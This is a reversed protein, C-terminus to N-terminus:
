LVLLLQMIQPLNHTLHKINPHQHHWSVTMIYHVIIFSNIMGLTAIFSYFQNCYSSCNTVLNSPLRLTALQILPSLFHVIVLILKGNHLLLWQSRNPSLEHLVQRSDKKPELHVEHIIFFICGFLASDKRWTHVM